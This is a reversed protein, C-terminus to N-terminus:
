EKFLKGADSYFRLATTGRITVDPEIESNLVLVFSDTYKNKFM